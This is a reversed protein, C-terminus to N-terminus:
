SLTMACCRRMVSFNPIACRRMTTPQDIPASCVNWQPASNGSMISVSAGNQPEALHERCLKTKRSPTFAASM